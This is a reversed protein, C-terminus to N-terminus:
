KKNIRKSYIYVVVSTFKDDTRKTEEYDGFNSLVTEGSDYDLELSKLEPDKNAEKIFEEFYMRSYTGCLGRLARFAEDESAFPGVGTGHESNVVYVGEKQKEYKIMDIPLSLFIGVINRQYGEFMYRTDLRNVIYFLTADFALQCFKHHSLFSKKVKPFIKLSIAELKKKMDDTILNSQPSTPKKKFINLFGETGPSLNISESLWSQTKRQNSDIIDFGFNNLNM